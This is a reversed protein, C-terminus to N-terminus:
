DLVRFTVAALKKADQYEDESSSPSMGLFRIDSAAVNLSYTVSILLLGYIKTSFPPIYFSKRLIKGTRM